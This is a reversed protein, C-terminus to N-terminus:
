TSARWRPPIAPLRVGEVLDVLRGFAYVAAWSRVVTRSSTIPPVKIVNVKVHDSVWDPDEGYSWTRELYGAASM